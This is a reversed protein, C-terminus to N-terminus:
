GCSFGGAELTWALDVSEDRTAPVCESACVELPDCNIRVSGISHGPIPEMSMACGTEDQHIPMLYFSEGPGGCLHKSACVECAPPPLADAEADGGDVGRGANGGAAPQGAAGGSSTSAREADSACAAVLLAMAIAVGALKTMPTDRVTYTDDRLVCLLVVFSAGGSSRSM